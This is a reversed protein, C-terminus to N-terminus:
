SGAAIQPAEKPAEIAVVHLQPGVGVSETAYIHPGPCEISRVKLPSLHLGACGVPLLRRHEDRPDAGDHVVAPTLM